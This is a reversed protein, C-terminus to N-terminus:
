IDINIGKGLFSEPDYDRSSGMLNISGDTHITAGSLTQELEKFGKKMEKNLKGKILGDINKFGDTLTYVIGMNKIFDNNNEKQYKQLATYYKGTEPDKYIPKAINDYIKQRTQKTMDIGGFLKQDELISKELEKVDQKRAEELQKSNQKADNLMGDYQSKFFEKNGALAEKADEIDNGSNFSKTVERNAREESFGRNIFDQFILQKRLNEGDKGEDAITDEQISELYNITNEYQKVVTPEVGNNLAEDIRKQREDLNDSIRKNILERLDDASKVKSFDEDNLDPFIGEEKFAKAISSYFTPSNSDSKLETDGEEQHNTNDESGVSEPKEDFLNDPNIVETTKNEETKESEEANNEPASGEENSQGESSPEVFLNDIEEPSLISADNLGIEM